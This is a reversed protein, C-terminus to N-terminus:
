TETKVPRNMTQAHCLFPRLSLRVTAPINVRYARRTPACSASASEAIEGAGNSEVGEPAGSLVIKGGQAKASAEGGAGDHWLGSPKAGTTANTLAGPPALSQTPATSAAGTVLPKVHCADTPREEQQETASAPGVHPATPGLVTAHLAVMAEVDAASMQAQVEAQSACARKEKESAALTILQERDLPPEKAKIAKKARALPGTHPRTDAGPDSCAALIAGTSPCRLEHDRPLTRTGTGNGATDESRPPQTCTGGAVSGAACTGNTAGEAIPASAPQGSAVSGAAEMQLSGGLCAAASSASAAAGVVGDQAITPPAHPAPVASCTARQHRISTVAAIAAMMIDELDDTPLSKAKPLSGCRATAPPPDGGCWSAAMQAADFLAASTPSHGQRRHQRAALQEHQIFKALYAQPAAPLRTVGSSAGQAQGWAVATWGRRAAQARQRKVPTAHAFATAEELGTAAYQGYLRRQLQRHARRQERDGSGKKSKRASKSENLNDDVPCNRKRKRARDRKGKKKKGM